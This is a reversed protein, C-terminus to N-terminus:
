RSNNINSMWKEEFSDPITDIEQSYIHRFYYKNGSSNTVIEFRGNKQRRYIEFETTDILSVNRGYFTKSLYDVEKPSSFNYLDLDFGTRFRGFYNVQKGTLDYLLQYNVGCGLGTCPSYTLVLGLLRYEDSRYYKVQHLQNAFNVSDKGVGWVNNLTVAQKTDIVDGNVVIELGGGQKHKWNLEIDMFNIRQQSIDNVIVSPEIRRPELYSEIIREYKNSETQNSRNNKELANQSCSYLLFVVVIIILSHISAM